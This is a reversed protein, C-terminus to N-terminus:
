PRWSLMEKRYKLKGKKMPGWSLKEKTYKLKCLRTKRMPRFSLEGETDSKGKRERTKIFNFNLMSFSIDHRNIIWINRLWKKPDQNKKFVILGSENKDTKQVIITQDPVCEMQSRWWLHPMMLANNSLCQFWWWWWCWCWCLYWLFSWVRIDTRLGTQNLMMMLVM